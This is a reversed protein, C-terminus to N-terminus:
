TSASPRRRDHKQCYAAWPVAELRAEEIPEGDEACRGFTGNEIRDLADRVESLLTRAAEVQALQEYRLEGSASEDGTDHPIGDGPESLSAVLRELRMTTELRVALLRQRYHELNM